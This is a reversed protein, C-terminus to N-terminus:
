NYKKGGLSSVAEEVQIWDTFVKDFIKNKVDAKFKAQKTKERISDCDGKTEDM